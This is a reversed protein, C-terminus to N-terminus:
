SSSGDRPAGRLFAEVEACLQPQFAARDFGPPDQSPPFAPSTLAPPFPSLFAFHGAGPVVGYDMEREGLIREVFYPPTLEDREGTRVFLRARVDALARPAMFWPLAPALLVLADVRPDRAVEVARAVGDPTENPLAMPRGGAIALATYAGLSHGIVAARGQAVYAGLVGDGFVADLAVRLHRPRNALNEPKGELANDGRTNGPHVVLAVAFGARALHSALVRHSWPTGGTGHSIAVVPMAEGDVSPAIPAGEAVDIAYPGFAKAQMAANAPYLVHVPVAVGQVHDIPALSRLGVTM